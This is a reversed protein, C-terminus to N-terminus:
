RAWEKAAGTLLWTVQGVAGGTALAAALQALQHATM